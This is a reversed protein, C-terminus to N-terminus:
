VFVPTWCDFPSRRRKLLNSAFVKEIRLLEFWLYISPMMKNWSLSYNKNSECIGIWLGLNKANNMLENPTKLIFKQWIATQIWNNKIPQILAFRFNPIFLINFKIFIRDPSVFKLTTLNPLACTTNTSPKFQNAYLNGIALYFWGGILSESGILPPKNACDEKSVFDIM